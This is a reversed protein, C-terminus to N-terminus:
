SRPRPKGAPSKPHSRKPPHATGGNAKRTSGAGLEVSGVGLRRGHPHAGSTRADGIGIAQGAGGEAALRHCVPRIDPVGGAGSTDGASVIRAVSLRSPKRQGVSSEERNLM